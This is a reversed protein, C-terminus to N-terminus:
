SGGNRRAAELEGASPQFADSTMREEADLRHLAALNKRTEDDTWGNARADAFFDESWDYREWEGNKPAPKQRDKYVKVVRGFRRLDEDSNRNVAPWSM